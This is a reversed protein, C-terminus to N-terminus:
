WRIIGSVWTYGMGMAVLAILDGEKILGAKSAEDLAIITDLQGVHGYDSMYFTKEHPLGLGDMVANHSRVNMHLIIAFNLDKLSKDIKALAREQCKIMSGFTVKSLEERFMEPEILRMFQGSTDNVNDKTIPTKTGGYPILFMNAFKGNSMASFSIFNHKKYGKKLICAAGGCSTNYLFTIAKDTYDIKDVNRYGGVLMVTNISDEDQMYKKAQDMAIVCSGCKAEMDYAWANKAGIAGQVRPGISYMLYDSYNEGFYIILDIELPDIGTKKLCDEAAIIALDSPQEDNKPWFIQNIGFKDRIVDEPVGSLRSIETADRIGSEPFAVGFGVIGCITNGM